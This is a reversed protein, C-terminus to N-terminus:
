FKWYLTSYFHHYEPGKSLFSKLRESNLMISVITKEYIGKMLKLSNGEIGLKSIYKKFSPFPYQINDFTKKIYAKM